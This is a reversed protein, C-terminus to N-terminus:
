EDESALRWIIERPRDELLLQLQEAGCEQEVLELARRRERLARPAHTDTALVYYQKAKLLRWSREQSVPGEGGGLSNLNGQLWVGRELLRDIVEDWAKAELNMREPHAFVPQYGNDLLFQCCEECFLPWQDGWWDLLVCRGPGLTPLGWYSFWESTEAFIRVEGGDWLHYDLGAAAVSERLSPMLDAIHDPTNEQFYGPGVHPTCVSGIFGEEIWARICDLSQEVTQCGDDVGPLLHSHIDIRGRPPPKVSSLNM